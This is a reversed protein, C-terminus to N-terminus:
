QSFHGCGANFEDHATGADPIGNMREMAFQADKLKQFTTKNPDTADKIMAKLRETREDAARCEESFRAVPEFRMAAIMPDPQLRLQFEMIAGGLGVSAAM